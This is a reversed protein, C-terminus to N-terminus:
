RVQGLVCELSIILMHIICTCHRVRTPTLSLSKLQNEVEESHIRKGKEYIYQRAKEVKAKVDANDIRALKTRANLDHKTATKM